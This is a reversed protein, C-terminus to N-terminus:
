KQMVLLLLFVEIMFTKLDKYYSTYDDSCGGLVDMMSANLILEDIHTENEEGL